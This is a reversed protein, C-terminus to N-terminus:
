LATVPTAPEREEVLELRYGIGPQTKIVLTSEKLKARLRKVNVDVSRDGRAMAYGWVRKYLIERPLTRGASDALAHLVERERRTLRLDEGAWEVEGNVDDIRLPGLELPRGRRARGPRAAVAIRAGLEDQGMGDHVVEDAGLAFLDAVAASSASPLWAVLACSPDARRAREFFGDGPVGPEFVLAEPRDSRLAHEAAQDDSATGVVIFGLDALRSQLAAARGSALVVVQVSDLDARM